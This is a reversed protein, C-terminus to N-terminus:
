EELDTPTIPQLSHVIQVPTRFNDRKFQKTIRGMVAQGDELAASPLMILYQSVSFRTFVDGRRLSQSITNSLKSMAKRLIKVSPQAGDDDMITILALYVTQGSRAENRAELRYLSKFFEYEVFLCGENEGIEKLDEKIASLNLERARTTRVLEAYVSTLEKSPTIGLGNFFLTTVYEYHNIARRTEGAMALAQAFKIHMQEDYPDLTVAKKAVTIIDAIRGQERFIDTLEHMAGTYLSHLRENLSAVWPEHSHNPLFRGNYAEFAGTLFKIRDDESTDPADAAECLRRFEEVDVVCPVSPIWTYTGRRYRVLQKTNGIELPELLSRVRYLLTKLTNVTDDTNEDPWLMKAIEEQALARDRNAILYELLMWAKRTHSRIDAIERGGYSISFGGLM